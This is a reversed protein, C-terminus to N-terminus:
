SRKRFRASVGEMVDKRDRTGAIVEQANSKLVQYNASSKRLLEIERTVFEPTIQELELPRGTEHSTNFIAKVLWAAEKATINNLERM